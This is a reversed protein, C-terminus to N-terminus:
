KKSVPVEVSTRNPYVFKKIVGGIVKTIIPEILPISALSIGLTEIKPNVIVDLKPDKVFSVWSKGHKMPVFCVRLVGEFKRLLIEVSFDIDIEQLANIQGLDIGTQLVLHCEGNYTM